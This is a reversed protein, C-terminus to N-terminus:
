KGAEVTARLPLLVRVVGHAATGPACIELSGGHAEIIKRAVALGLGLGPIRTTFFHKGAQEFAEKAFGQGQDHVEFALMPSHSRGTAEVRRVTVLPNAANAQLANM